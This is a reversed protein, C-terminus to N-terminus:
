SNGASMSATESVVLARGRRRMGTRVADIGLAVPIVGLSMALLAYDLGSAAAAAAALLPGGAIAIVGGAILRDTTEVSEADRGSASDFEVALPIVLNCLGIVFVSSLVMVVLWAAGFLMNSNHIAFLPFDYAAHLVVPIILANRTRWIGTDGSLRAAILLAGMALGDLGHGPISTIARFAATIKWDDKAVVYGFNELTAFGISVALAIALITQVRRVDVHKEALGVLVFFKVSEECIGALVASRLAAVSSGAHDFPIVYDLGVECGGAVIAGVAGLFYASWIAECRWTSRAKAIGYGLVIL